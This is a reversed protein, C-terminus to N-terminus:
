QNEKIAPRAPTEAQRVIAAVDEASVGHFHIHQAPPAIARLPQAAIVRPPPAPAACQAARHEALRRPSSIWRSWACFAGLAVVFVALAAALLAAHALVWAAVAAALLCAVAALALLAPLTGAGGTEIIARQPRIYTPV